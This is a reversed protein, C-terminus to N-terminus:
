KETHEEIRPHNSWRVDGPLADAELGWMRNTLCVPAGGGRSFLEDLELRRVTLGLRDCADAATTSFGPPAVVTTGVQLANTDYGRSEDVTLEVVDTDGVFELLREYEGDVLAEPCVLMVAQEPRRFFQLFTNGHFWPDARFSIQIHDTSLLEAVEDYAERDTRAEPGVGWTHVIRGPDDARIADGQGEWTADVRRPTVGLRDRVFAEIHDAEDVRHDVAMSPLVFGNDGRDDVFYEGAEATYILGTLEADGPPLVAVEGGAEVIADALDAWERRARHADVGDAARSKFNARGRLSWDRRPPSMLFVPTDDVTPM